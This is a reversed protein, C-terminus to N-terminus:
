NVLAVTAAKKAKPRAVGALALTILQM